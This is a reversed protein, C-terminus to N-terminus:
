RVRRLERHRRSRAPKARRHTPGGRLLAASTTPWSAAGTVAGAERRAVVAPAAVVPWVEHLALAATGTRGALALPRARGRDSSAARRGEPRLARLRSRRWSVWGPRLAARQEAEAAPAIIDNQASVEQPDFAATSPVIRHDARGSRAPAPAAPAYRHQRSLLVSHVLGTEVESNCPLPENAM